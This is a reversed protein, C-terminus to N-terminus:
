VKPGANVITDDVTNKFKKINDNFLKALDRAQKDYAKKDQWTNIPNLIEDPVGPCSKPIAMQFIPELEWEVNKLKDDHIATIIARTYPLEMRSGIGYPGGTWGTNVLYISTNHKEIKKGLLKAYEVPRLPLFPAGFCASFTAEPEVIGRETGAIKSTYGSLFHYMAQEKTLRAVPPLVGFADATLFVITQPHTAINIKSSNSIYELPYAARTNETNTTNFFDPERTGGEIWVNELITGYRIANYIEPENEESLKICKAYCGGEINFIGDDSWGHEDDGILERCADASLTTKGTGSLGFFLATKGEENMNASCHMSLINEQPLLYNMVSFISKKMEGAYEGGGILVMREDFNIIIFTESRTGDIEPIAKFKPLCIVTFEKGSSVGKPKIFLQKIFMHHWAYENIFKVTLTNKPDAGACVDTIYLKQHKAYELMKQYLKYFVEESIPTNNEWDIKDHVNPTDVIFKDKPSRGTHKGTNACFAGKHSLIGEKNRLADEVLESISLNYYVKRTDALFDKSSCINKHTKPM